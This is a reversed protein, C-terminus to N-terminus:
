QTAEEKSLGLRRKISPRLHPRQVLDARHKWALIAVNGLWVALLTPAMDPHAAALNISAPAVWLYILFSAMALIVAWGDAATLWVWLGLFIGLVIPGEYTLLGTWIGFTVAVAKGGKFGLIPSFAHGFVPALAVPVLYWGALGVTFHALGVPIAGKLADLLIAMVGWIKSGARIVNSGGPNHDGYQRIDANLVWRGIWVSFPISGALFGLVTWTLTQALM